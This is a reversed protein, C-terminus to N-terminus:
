CRFGSTQHQKRKRHKLLTRCQCSSTKWIFTTGPIWVHVAEEGLRVRVLLHDLHKGGTVWTKHGNIILSDGQHEAFSDPLGGRSPSGLRPESAVANIFAGRAVEKGLHEYHVASWPQTERVYGMLHLTM